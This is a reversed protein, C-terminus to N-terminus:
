EIWNSYADNVGKMLDTKISFKGMFLLYTTIVSLIFYGFGVSTFLLHNWVGTDNSIIYSFVMLEFAPIIYIFMVIKKYISKSSIKHKKVYQLALINFLVQIIYLVIVYLIFTGLYGHKFGNGIHLNYDSSIILNVAELIVLYGLGCVILYTNLYNPVRKSRLADYGCVFYIGGYIVFYMTLLSNLYFDSSIIVSVIFMLALSVGKIFLDKYGSKIFFIEIVMLYGLVVVAISQMISPLYLWLSYDNVKWNIINHFDVPVSVVLGILTLVIFIKVYRMVVYYSAKSLNPELLKVFDRNRVLLVLEYIAIVGFAIVIVFFKNGLNNGDTLLDSFMWIASIYFLIRLVRNVRVDLEGTINKM